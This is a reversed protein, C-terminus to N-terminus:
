PKIKFGLTKLYLKEPYDEKRLIADTKQITGTGKDAFCGGCFSATM